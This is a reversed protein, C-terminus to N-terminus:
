LPGIKRQSPRLPRRSDADTLPGIFERLTPLAAAIISRPGGTAPQQALGPMFM